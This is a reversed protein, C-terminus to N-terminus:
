LALHRTEPRAVDELQRSVLNTVVRAATALGAKGRLDWVDASRVELKLLALNPDTAGEPFFASWTDNWWRQVRAPDDVMEADGALSVYSLTGQFTANAHEFTRVGSAAESYFDTVFWLTNGDRHAVFLPRSTIVGEPTLTSLMATRFRDVLDFLDTKDM